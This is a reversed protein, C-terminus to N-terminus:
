MSGQTGKEAERLMQEIAYDIPVRTEKYPEIKVSVNGGPQPLAAIAAEDDQPVTLDKMFEAHIYHIVAYRAEPDLAPFAPMSGLGKDLTHYMQLTTPGLKWAYLSHFNRPKVALKSGATGNGLGESGHCSACNNAYVRTGLAVLEETPKMLKRHDYIKEEVAKEAVPPPELLKEVSGKELGVRFPVIATLYVLYVGVISIPIFLFISSKEKSANDNHM